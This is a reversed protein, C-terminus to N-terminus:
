PEELANRVALLDDRMLQLRLVMDHIEDRAAQGANPGQPYFDRDHPYPLADIAATLAVVANHYEKQLAQRGSGNLHVTPVKM